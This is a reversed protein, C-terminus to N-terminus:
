TRGLGSETLVRLTSIRRLAILHSRTSLAAGGILCHTVHEGNGTHLTWPDLSIEVLMGFYVM